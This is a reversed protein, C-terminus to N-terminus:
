QTLGAEVEYAIGIIEQTIIDMIVFYAPDEETAETYMFLYTTGDDSAAVIIISYMIQIEFLQSSEGDGILVTNNTPFTLTNTSGDNYSVEYQSSAYFELTNDRSDSFVTVAEMVADYGMKLEAFIGEFAEDEYTVEIYSNPNSPKVIKEATEEISFSIKRAFHSMMKFGYDVVVKTLRGEKVYFEVKLNLSHLSITQGNDEVDTEPLNIDLVYHGLSQCFTAEAYGNEDAALLEEQTMGTYHCISQYLMEMVADAIDEQPIEIDGGRIFPPNNELPMLMEIVSELDNTFDGTCKKQVFQEEGMDTVVDVFLGEDYLYGNVKIQSEDTEEGNAEENYIYKDIMDVNFSIEVDSLDAYNITGSLSSDSVDKGLYFLTETYDNLIFKYGQVGIYNSVDVCAEIATAFTETDITNYVPPKDDNEDEDPDECAVMAFTVLSIMLAFIIALFKKM